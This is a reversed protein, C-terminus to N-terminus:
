LKEKILEYDIELEPNDLCVAEHIIVKDMPELEGNPGTAGIEKIIEYTVEIIDGNINLETTQMVNRAFSM